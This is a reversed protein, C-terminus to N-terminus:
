GDRVLEPSGEGGHTLEGLHQDFFELTREWAKAAATADKLKFDAFDFGPGVTCGVFTFAGLTLQGVNNITGSVQNVVGTILTAANTYNVVWARFFPDTNWRASNIVYTILAVLTEQLTITIGLAVPLYTDITLRLGYLFAFVGFDGLSGAQKGKYTAGLAECSDEIVKLGHARAVASVADMDAPQGFVDVPLLAKLPGAARDMRRPLYTMIHEAADALMEVDINGTRPDIDVFVPVANEFLLVNSSAVFSFPTTIVLDGPGIGAARVCLHLGATGSSVAIAHKLGTVEQFAKEFDLVWHGMSLIPTNLVDQVARREMETLDPSSMPIRNTM